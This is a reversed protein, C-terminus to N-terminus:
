EKDCKYVKEYDMEKKIVVLFTQLSTAFLKVNKIYKSYVGPYQHLPHLHLHHRLHPDLYQYLM